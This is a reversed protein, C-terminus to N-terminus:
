PKPARLVSLVSEMRLSLGSEASTRLTRANSPSPAVSAAGAVAVSALDAKCRLGAPLTLGPNPLELRARFTNSAGDILKDVLIVRAQRVGAGAFEPTIGMTMGERLTGYLNSPLVIEVRLPDVVAIRFVAKEEVREGASLYRDAVVGNTPSRVTRLALQAQALTHEGALVGRQERAQALRNTAIESETQAQELAQPSIFQQEALYKARALKQRALDANNVAANFDGLAQARNYAVGVAAREVDARLTALAQGKVVRDGREVQMSEIVGTVPSGVDAVRFPEILCGLPQAAMAVSVMCPFAGFWLIKKTAAMM